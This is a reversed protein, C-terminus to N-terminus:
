SDSESMAIELEALLDMVHAEIAALTVEPAAADLDGIEWYDVRSVWDPHLRALLPRHESEKLAVIRDARQFDLESVQVPDAGTGKRPISRELLRLTAHPSLGSSPALHAALGRSLARWGLRRQTAKHNFLAEAYRSRYYNGTCIFLVHRM